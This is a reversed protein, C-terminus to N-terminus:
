TVMLQVSDSFEYTVNKLLVFTSEQLKQITQGGTTIDVTAGLTVIMNETPTYSIGSPVINRLVPCQIGKFSTDKILNIKESSM